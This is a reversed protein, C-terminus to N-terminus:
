DAKSQDASLRRRLKAMALAELQRTRERTIGLRAGIDELTHPARVGIGHRLRLIFAERPPLTDLLEAVLRARQAGDIADSPDIQLPDEILGHLNSDELNSLPADLSTAVRSADRAVGVQAETLGSAEILETPTPIRGFRQELVGSLKRLRRIRDHMHPTVRVTRSSEAIALMTTQRIWHFAYTSFKYGLRYDFRDVARMLGIMSEQVLDEVAVGNGAVRYALYHALKLNASVMRARARRYEAHATTAARTCARLTTLDAGATTEIARIQKHAAILEDQASIGSASIVSQQVRQLDAHFMGHKQEVAAIQRDLDQCKELAERLVVFGPELALFAKSLRKVALKSRAQSRASQWEALRAALEHGRQRWVARMATSPKDGADAGATSSDAEVLSANNAHIEAQKQFPAFFVDTRPREGREVEGFRAVLVASAAPVKSLARSMAVRSDFVAQGLSEEEERSLLSVTRMLDAYVDTSFEDGVTRADDETRAVDGSADFPRDGDGYANFLGGNALGALSVDAPDVISDVIDM